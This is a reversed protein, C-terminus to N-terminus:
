IYLTSFPCGLVVEPARYYRTVCYTGEAPVDEANGSTPSTTPIREASGLDGLIIYDDGIDSGGIDKRILINQPKIDLHLWDMAHMNAVARFIQKTVRTAWRFNRTFNTEELKQALTKEALPFVLAFLRTSQRLAPLDITYFRQLELVGPTGALQLLAPVEEKECTFKVAVPCNWEDRARM